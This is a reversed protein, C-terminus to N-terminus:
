ANKLVTFYVCICLFLLLVSVSFMNITVDDVHTSFTIENGRMLIKSCNHYNHINPIKNIHM